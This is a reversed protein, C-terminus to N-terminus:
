RVGYQRAGDRAIGGEVIVHVAIVGGTDILRRREADGLVALRERGDDALVRNQAHLKMRLFRLVRPQRQKGLESAPIRSSSEHATRLYRHAVATRGGPRGAAPM